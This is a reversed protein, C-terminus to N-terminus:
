PMYVGAAAGGSPDRYTISRAVLLARKFAAVSSIDLKASGKRVFVGVGVKAIDVRSGVVIKGQRQLDDLQPGSVIAVDAAEGKKLRETLSGVTGYNITVKHGSTKEFGPILGAIGPRWASACLLRIEDARATSGAATIILLCALATRAAATLVLTARIM